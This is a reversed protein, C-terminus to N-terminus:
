EGRLAVIPDLRSANRAPSVGFVLGVLISFGFAALISALSVSTNWDTAVAIVVSVAIGLAIGILGGGVSLIASEIVFQLTIDKRSAGVAMRLGIEKRRERIAILMIALIGIGGILLSVGGISAILATFTDTTERQAELLETQSQVTFDDPKNSRSLRHRERLLERVQRKAAAMEDPGTVQLYVSRLYDQNFVRRLATQIPIFIQDDQDVGNLDVGKSEMVGIVEFQVRGVRITKGIPDSGAFLNKVVSRGLVAVRRSARNESESFFIGRKTYFSRVEPFEHSTGVVTTNSSLNALKVQSKKSQIPAANRILNLNNKIADVDDLRLTTVAGRVQARGASKRVQGANVIVLNTGMAKIRNLVQEQAGNGIAVMVIVASVGIIIGALALISRLKHAMLQKRSIKVSRAIRM